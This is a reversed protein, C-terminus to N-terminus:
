KAQEVLLLKEPDVTVTAGAADFDLDTEVKRDRMEVTVDHSAGDATAIRVTLAPLRFPPQPQLQELVLKSGEITARVLPRGATLLWQDFFWSLDEGAAASLEAALDDYSCRKGMQKTFAARWAANFREDGLFQRLMDLVVPVKCFAITRYGKTQYVRPSAVPVDKDAARGAYYYGAVKRMGARYSAQGSDAEAYCLDLYTAVGEALENPLAVAYANWQHSLEDVVVLAGLVSPDELKAGDVKVGELDQFFGHSVMILGPTSVGQEREAPTVHAFAVRKWPLPGMMREFIGYAKLAVALRQELLKEEGEYGYWVLENGSATEASRQIYKAVAWGFPLIRPVSLDNAFEYTVTDGDETVAGPNGGAAVVCGKPVTVSLKVSADNNDDLPYYAVHSSYSSKERVQGLVSVEAVLDNPVNAFYTDAHASYHVTAREGPQLPGKLTVGHTTSTNGADRSAVALPQGDQAFSDLTVVSTALTIASVETQLAEVVLDDTVTTSGSTPDLTVHVDHSAVRSNQLPPKPREARVDAPTSLDETQEAPKAPEGLSANTIVGRLAAAKGGDDWDGMPACVQLIILKGDLVVGCEVTRAGAGTYEWVISEHGSLEGPEWRVEAYDNRMLAKVQERRSQLGAPALASPVMLAVVRREIGDPSAWLHVVAGAQSHDQLKYGDGPLDFSLGTAEDVVREAAVAAAPLGLAVLLSLAALRTVM